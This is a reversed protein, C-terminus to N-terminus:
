FAFTEFIMFNNYQPIDKTFHYYNKLFSTLRNSPRDYAINNAIVNEKKLMFEFLFHGIGKRQYKTTILFDLVSLPILEHCTSNKDYLYLKKRGIKIYGIIIDNRGCIFYLIQDPHNEIIDLTTIPYNLNQWKASEKGLEKIQVELEKYKKNNNRKLLKIDQFTLSYIKLENFNIEFDQTIM